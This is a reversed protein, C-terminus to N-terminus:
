AVPSWDDPRWLRQECYKRAAVTKGIREYLANWADNRDRIADLHVPSKPVNPDRAANIAAVHAKHHSAVAASARDHAAILSPRSKCGACTGCQQLSWSTKRSDRLSLLVADNPRELAVYELFTHLRRGNALIPRAEKWDFRMDAVYLIVVQAKSSLVDVIPRTAWLHEFQHTM